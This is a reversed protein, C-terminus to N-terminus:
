RCCLVATGVGTYSCGGLCSGGPSFVGPPVFFGAGGPCGCVGWSGLSGENTFGSLCTGTYSVYCGGSGGLAQWTSGNSYYFTDYAASYALQGREGTGWSTAPNGFQPALRIDGDRTPFDDSDLVGDGDADGVAIQKAQLKKYVGFPSPYYTTLTITTAYVCFVFLYAICGIFIVKNKKNQM